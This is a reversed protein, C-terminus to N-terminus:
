LADKLALHQQTLVDVVPLHGIEAQRSAFDLSLVEGVASLSERFGAQVYAQEITQAKLTGLCDNRV